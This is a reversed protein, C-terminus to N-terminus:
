SSSNVGVVILVIWGALLISSVLVGALAQGHGVGGNRRARALGAFGFPLAIPLLCPVVIGVLALVLATVAMTNDPAPPRYGYPLPAQGPRM